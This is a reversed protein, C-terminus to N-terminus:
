KVWVVLQQRWWVGVHCIWPPRPVGGGGLYWAAGRSAGWSECVGGSRGSELSSARDRLCRREREGGACCVQGRRGFEGCRWRAGVVWERQEQEGLRWWSGRPGRVRQEHGGPRWCARWRWGM